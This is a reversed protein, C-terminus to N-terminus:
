KQENGKDFPSLEPKIEGKFNVSHVLQTRIIARMHQKLSIKFLTHGDRYILYLHSNMIM